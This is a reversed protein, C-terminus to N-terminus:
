PDSVGEQGWGVSLAICVSVGIRGPSGRNAPIGNVGYMRKLMM